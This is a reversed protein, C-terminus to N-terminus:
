VVVSRAFVGPPADDHRGTGCRAGLPDDGDQVEEGGVGVLRERERFQRAAEAEVLGCAVGQQHRQGFGTVHQTVRCAHCVHEAGREHRDAAGGLALELGDVERALLHAGEGLLRRELADGARDDAVLDDDEAAAARRQREPRRDGEALAQRQYRRQAAHEHGPRRGFVDVAPELALM